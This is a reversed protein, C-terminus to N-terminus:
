TQRLVPSLHDIQGPLQESLRSNLEGAAAIWVVAGTQHSGEEVLQPHIPERLGAASVVADARDVAKGFRVSAKVRTSSRHWPVQNEKAVSVVTARHIPQGVHADDVVVFLIARHPDNMAHM